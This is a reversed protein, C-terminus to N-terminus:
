RGLWSVLLFLVRLVNLRRWRASAAGVEAPPAASHELRPLSLEEINM